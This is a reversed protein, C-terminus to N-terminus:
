LNKNQLFLIVNEAIKIGDAASSTIGGAYGAGEGAAFVGQLNSMMNEDRVIQVPSSSRSEVGILLNYDSAFNKIKNNFKPLAMKLSEVVFDPLCKSLDALTIAPMYTPTVKGKKDIEKSPEGKLFDKVYQAPANYNAGGVEFALREYKHQFEVGALVDESGFDEPVVNVLVASNANKGDRAHYSMGNTVVTNEESSSAVVYGGPCMCFTFVSRGNDLHEVLKYNAAALGTDNSGYQAFDIGAQSQEIRVGMAFPKQKLQCGANNLLKYVDVASHGVALVVADTTIKDVKGTLTNTFKVACVRNQEFELGDFHSNFWVEGGYAIIKERINKVVEKLKDSGIHPTHSYFIDSPAGNLIFENICMKTYANSVNSALKGDSFTGAGGEGFQVNSYINLKRDKWFEDVDKQREYVSKGQELVIPKLGCIALKLAAFMGAPGFGVVVPRNGAFNIKKGEVGLHDVEIDNCKKLKFLAASTVKAAVNLSVIINPKKRCDLSEKVIEYQVIEDAKLGYKKFVANFIDQKTYNPKVKLESLLKMTKRWCCSVVAALGKYIKACFFIHWILM